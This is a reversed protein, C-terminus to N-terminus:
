EALHLGARWISDTLTVRKTVTSTAIATTSKLCMGSDPRKTHKGFGHAKADVLIRGRNVM